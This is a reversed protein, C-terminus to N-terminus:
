IKGEVTDVRGYCFAGEVADYVLKYDIALVDVVSVGEARQLAERAVQRGDLWLHNCAAEVHKHGTEVVIYLAYVSHKRCGSVVRRLVCLRQVPVREQELPDDLAALRNHRLEACGGACYFLGTAALPAAADRNSARGTTTRCNCLNHRPPLVLHGVQVRHELL